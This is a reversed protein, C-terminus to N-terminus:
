RMCNKVSRLLYLLTKLSIIKENYRYLLKEICKSIRCVEDRHDLLELAKILARCLDESSNPSYYMGCNKLYEVISMTRPAVIPKKLNIYLALVGSSWVRKYAVVLIDSASLLKELLDQPIYRAIVYLRPCSKKVKLLKKIIDISDPKGAVIFMVKDRLEKCLKEVSDLFVEVGRYKRLRGFFLIVKYDKPIGLKERCVSKGYVNVPLKPHPLYIPNRNVHYLEKFGLSVANSHTFITKSSKLLIRIATLEILNYYKDHPVLNHMTVVIHRKLIKAILIFLLLYLARLTSIIINSSIVLYEPWHIHICSCKSVTPILYLINRIDVVSVYQHWYSYLIELYQHRSRRPYVCIKM